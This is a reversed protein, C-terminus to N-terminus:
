KPSSANKKAFEGNYLKNLFVGGNTKKYLM